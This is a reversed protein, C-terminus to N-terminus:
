GANSVQCLAVKRSNFKAILGSVITGIVMQWIGWLACALSVEPINSFYVLGLVMGLGSNQISVEWAITISTAYDKTALKTFLYATLFCGISSGFVMMMMFSDIEALSKRFSICAGAILGFLLWSVSKEIVARFKVWKPGEQNRIWIGIVLPILISTVLTNFIDGWPLHLEKYAASWEPKIHTALFFIAPVTLPSLLTSLFSLGMSIGLNGNSKIVFLQSLNGGPCAALLVFALMMHISPNVILLLIMMFTPLFTIQMIYGFILKKWIKPLAKIDAITIEFSIALMIVALIVQVVLAQLNQDTNNMPYIKVKFAFLNM